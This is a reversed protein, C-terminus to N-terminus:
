VNVVTWGSPIGNNGTPLTTMSAAKTFTGTAAVNSVWNSLSGSASIDTALMTINNVNSCGSFISSYCGQALTPAPLVPVSTLSTCNQFMRTYCYNGLTTAPLIMNEASIITSCGYFLHSLHQLLM